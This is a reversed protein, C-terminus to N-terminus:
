RQLYAQIIESESWRLSTNIFRHVFAALENQAQKEVEVELFGSSLLSKKKDKKVAWSAPITLGSRLLEPLLGHPEAHPINLVFRPEDFAVEVVRDSGVCEFTVWGGNYDRVLEDLVRAIGTVRDETAPEPIQRKRARSFM